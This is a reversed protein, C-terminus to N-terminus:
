VQEQKGVRRDLERLQALRQAVKTRLEAKMKEDPLHQILGRLHRVKSQLVQLPEM